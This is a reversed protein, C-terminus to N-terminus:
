CSIIRETQDQIGWSSIYLTIKKLHEVTTMSRDQSIKRLRELPIDQGHMDEREFGVSTDALHPALSPVQRWVYCDSNTGAIMDEAREIHVRASLYAHM